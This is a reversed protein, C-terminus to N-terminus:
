SPATTVTNVSSEAGQARGPATMARESRHHEPEAALGWLPHIGIGRRLEQRSDVLAPLERQQAGAPDGEAFLLVHPEDRLRESKMGVAQPEM